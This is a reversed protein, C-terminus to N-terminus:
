IAASIVKDSKLYLICDLVRRADIVNSPLIQTLSEQLRRFLIGTCYVFPCSRRIYRLTRNTIGASHLVWDYLQLVIISICHLTIAFTSGMGCTGGTRLVYLICWGGNGGRTEWALSWGAASMRIPSSIRSSWITAAERCCCDRVTRINDLWADKCSTTADFFRSALM